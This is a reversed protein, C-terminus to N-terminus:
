MEYGLVQLQDGAECGTAAVTGAPLEIVYRVGRFMRGFRWPKLNENVGVVKHEKDVFLVDIPFGMFHTHISSCPNILMGEGQALPEHGILGKFRTWGSDAIECDAVVTQGRTLNEVKIQPQDGSSTDQTM